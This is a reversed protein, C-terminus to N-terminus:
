FTYCPLSNTYYNIDIFGLHIKWIWLWSMRLIGKDFRDLKKAIWIIIPIHPHEIVLQGSHTSRIINECIKFVFPPKEYMNPNGDNSTDKVKANVMNANEIRNPNCFIDLVLLPLKNKDTSGEM